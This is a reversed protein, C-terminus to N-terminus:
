QQPEPRKACDVFVGGEIYGHWCPTGDDRETTCNVSPSLTPKDFNGDWVWSKNAIDHGRGRLNLTCWGAGQRCKFAFRDVKIAPTGPAVPEYSLNQYEFRGDASKM